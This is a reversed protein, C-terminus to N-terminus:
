VNELTVGEPPLFDEPVICIFWWGIVPRLDEAFPDEPEPGDKIPMPMITYGFEAPRTRTHGSDDWHLFKVAKLIEDLEESITPSNIIVKKEIM